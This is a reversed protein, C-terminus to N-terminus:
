FADPDGPQRDAPLPLDPSLVDVQLKDSEADPRLVDVRQAAPLLGGANAADDRSDDRSEDGLPDDSSPEGSADDTAASPEDASREDAQPKAAEEQVTAGESYHDMLAAAMELQAAATAEAQEAEAVVNVDVDGVDFRQAAMKRLQSYLAHRKRAAEHCSQMMAVAFEQNARREGDGALATYYDVLMQLQELEVATTTVDVESYLLAAAPQVGMNIQASVRDRMTIQSDLRKRVANLQGTLLSLATQRDQWAAAQERSAGVLDQDRFGAKPLFKRFRRELSWAAEVADSVSVASAPQGPLSAIERARFRPVDDREEDAGPVRTAQDEISAAREPRLVCIVDGAKLMQGDFLQEIRGDEPAVVLYTEQRALRSQFELLTKQSKALDGRAVALEAEAAALAGKTANLSDVRDEVSAADQQQRLQADRKITILEVEAAAATSKAEALRAKQEAVRRESLQLSTQSIVAKDFLKQQRQLETELNLLVAAVEDVAAQDSATRKEAAAMLQTHSKELQRSAEQATELKVQRSALESVRAAVSEQLAVIRSKNATVLDEAHQQQAQLRDRRNRDDPQVEAILDGAKM